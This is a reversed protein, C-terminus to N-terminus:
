YHIEFLTDQQLETAADLWGQKQFNIRFKWQFLNCGTISHIGIPAPFGPSQLFQQLGQLYKEGGHQGEVLAKDQDGQPCGLAHLHTILLAPLHWTFVTQLPIRCIHSFEGHFHLTIGWYKQYEAERNAPVCSFLLFAFSQCLARRQPASVHGSM